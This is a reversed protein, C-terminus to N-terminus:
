LAEANFRAINGSELNKRYIVIFFRSAVLLYALSLLTGILLNQALDHPFTGSGLISRMSEFVYSAPIFKAFTHLFPPLTSIPFYVGSFLSLVMPIPWGLWEASPGLRFIIASVFVGMGIGFILLIFMFPLLLVGIRLVNYGFVGGAIAVVAFFGALGTTISTLVLGCLYEKIQLPSAFFNIFNQTWIDELFAMLIGQQIRSMFEWLIIAGLIVTIFSFTAQGLSGIYKSIFGWQLIDIVLWLFVTALRTPNSRLLFIQRVYIAYIRSLSM